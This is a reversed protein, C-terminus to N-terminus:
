HKDVLDEGERFIKLDGSVVGSADTYLANSSGSINHDHDRVAKMLADVFLVSQDQNLLEKVHKVVSSAVDDTKLVPNKILFKALKTMDPSIEDIIEGYSMGVQSAERIVAEVSAFAAAMDKGVGASTLTTFTRGAQDVYSKYTDEQFGADTFGHVLAIEIDTQLLQEKLEQLQPSTTTQPNPQPTGFPPM